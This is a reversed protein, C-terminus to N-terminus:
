KVPLSNHMGESTEHMYLLISRSLFCILGYLRPSSPFYLSFQTSPVYFAISPCVCPVDAGLHLVTHIDRIDQSVGQNVQHGQHGQGKM